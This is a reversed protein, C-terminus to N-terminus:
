APDALTTPHRLLFYGIAVWTLGQGIRLTGAMTFVDFAAAALGAAVAVPLGVVLLSAMWRPPRDSRAMALGYLALGGYVALWSLYYGWMFWNEGGTLAPVTLPPLLHEGFHTVITALLGAAAITRGGRAVAGGPDFRRGLAVLCVLLLLVPITEAVHLARAAQDPTLGALGLGETRIYTTLQGKTLAYPVLLAGGALGALGGVPNDGPALRRARTELSM